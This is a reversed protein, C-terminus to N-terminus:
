WFVCCGILIAMVVILVVVGIVVWVQWHTHTYQFTCIIHTLMHHQSM